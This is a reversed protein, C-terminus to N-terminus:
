ARRPPPKVFHKNVSTSGPLQDLVVATKEGAAPTLSGTLLPIQDPSPMPVSPVQGPVTAGVQDADAELAAIRSARATPSETKASPPPQQRQVHRAPPVPEDGSVANMPRRNRMLDEPREIVVPPSSPGVDDASVEQKPVPVEEVPKGTQEQQAQEKEQERALADAREMVAKVEEITAKFVM